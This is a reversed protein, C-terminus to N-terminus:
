RYVTQQLNKLHQLTKIRTWGGSVPSQPFYSPIEVQNRVFIEGSSDALFLLFGTKGYDAPVAVVAWDKEPAIKTTGKSEPSARKHLDRYYYGDLMRGHGKAFALEKPILKVPIPTGQPDVSTWLHVSFKAYTRQGDGDWDKQIYEKQAQGIRKLNKFAEVENARM